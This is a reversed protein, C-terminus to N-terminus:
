QQAGVPPDAMRRSLEADVDDALERLLERQDPSLPKPQEDFVCLMGITTGELVIPASAYSRLRGLRGDVWPNDAFEQEASLDTFAYVDRTWDVITACISDTRAIDQAPQGHAAVQRQRDGDLLNIAACTMGTVAAARRVLEGLHVNQSDDGAETALPLRLRAIIAAQLQHLQEDDRRDLPLRLTVTTGEGPRSRVDITGAHGKQVVSRVLALGQGTGQGVDKTTFFPDFIKPLVDEPIGTGTDCISIQVHEGECRTSLRITGRRGSDAVADAANVLLNLFVQNLDAIHCSVPPLDGLDLVVDAVEKLRHRTITAAATLAENLDAPARESLGPHSYIKMAQIISSVRQVGELTQRIATPVENHLYDLEAEQEAALLLSRREEWPLSEATNLVQQYRGILEAAQAYAEALFRVNDGIFQIPTNIEHALGASLRGLSELNSERHAEAYRAIRETIDRSRMALELVQGGEGTLVSCLCEFWVWRRNAHRARFTVAAHGDRTAEARSLFTTVRSLDDPHVLGTVERGTLEEPSRGLLPRCSPSIYLIRGDPAHRSILDLSGETLRRHMAESEQLAAPSVPAEDRERLHVVYRVAGSIQLRQVRCSVWVQRGSRHLVPVAVPGLQVGLADPTLRALMAATTARYAPAIVQEVFALGTIEDAAWGLLAQAQAAWGLVRGDAALSILADDQPHDEPGPTLGGTMDRGQRPLREHQGYLTVMGVTRGDTLVPWQQTPPQTRRGLARVAAPNRYRTRGAADTICVGGPLADLLARLHSPPDLDGVQQGLAARLAVIVTSIM